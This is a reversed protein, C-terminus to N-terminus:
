SIKNQVIKNCKILFESMKKELFFNCPKSVMGFQGNPNVELFIYKNDTSKILDISGTKLNLKSMLQLIKYQIEIPMIYPVFRNPREKSYNRFDDTTGKNNQSFIAMSYIKEDLVFARIEFQKEVMEQFLSLSFYSPINCIDDIDLTKTTTMFSHGYLNMFLVESIPKIIIKGHKSIFKILDIKNNTILTSPVCLGVEKAKELVFLKNVNTNPPYDIWLKKEFKKFLFHSFYGIENRVFFYYRVVEQPPMNDFYKLNTSVDYWRRYWIVNAKDFKNVVYDNYNTTELDLSTAESELDEGNVRCFKENYFGLWDIIEDTTVENRNKSLILIM